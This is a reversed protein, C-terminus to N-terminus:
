NENFQLKLRCKGGTTGIDDVQNGHNKSHFFESLHRSRLHKFELQKQRFMEFWFPKLYM